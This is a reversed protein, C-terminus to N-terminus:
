LAKLVRPTVTDPYDMIWTATCLFSWATPIILDTAPQIMEPAVLDEIQLSLAGYLSDAGAETMNITQMMWMNAMAERLHSLINWPRPGDIDGATTQEQDMDPSSLAIMAYHPFKDAKLKRKSRFTKYVTPQYFGPTGAQFGGQRGKAFSTFEYRPEFITKTPDALGAMQNLNIEGIEVQPATDPTDWDWEVSGAGATVNMPGPKSVMNDWMVDLDIGGDPDIEPVIEGGFGFASFSDTDTVGTAAAPGILHIEGQVGLLTAGPIMPAHGCVRDSGAALLGAEVTKRIIRM